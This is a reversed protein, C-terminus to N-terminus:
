RVAPRRGGWGRIVDQDDGGELRDAGPGGLLPDVGPGGLAADDGPGADVRDGGAGALLRDDGTGGVLVDGGPGASIVDRGAQGALRDASADDGGTIRDDGAEGNVTDAGANGSITDGGRGGCILDNGGSGLILDPDDTGVIVDRAPTGFIPGSADPDGVITAVTGACKPPPCAAEQGRAAERATACGVAEARFRYNVRPGSQLGIYILVATGPAVSRPVITVTATGTGSGGALASADAQRTPGVFDVDGHIGLAPSFGIQTANVTVSLTVPAGEPPIVSPVPFAFDASGYFPAFRASGQGATWAEPDIIGARDVDVGQLVLRTGGAQGAVGTSSGGGGFVGVTVAVAVTIVACVVRRM